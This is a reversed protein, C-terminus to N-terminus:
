KSGTSKTSLIIRLRSPRGPAMASACDCPSSWGTMPRHGTASASSRSSCSRAPTRLTSVQVSRCPVMATGNGGMRTHPRSMSGKKLALVGSSSSWSRVMNALVAVEFFHLLGGAVRRDDADGAPLFGALGRKNLPENALKGATAELNGGDLVGMVIKLDVLSLRVAGTM